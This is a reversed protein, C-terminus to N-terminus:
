RAVSANAAANTPPRTARSRRSGRAVTAAAIANAAAVRDCGNNESRPKAIRAVAAASDQRPSRSSAQRMARATAPAPASM